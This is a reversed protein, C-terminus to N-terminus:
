CFWTTYIIHFCEEFFSSRTSECLVIDKVYTTSIAICSLESEVDEKKKGAHYDPDWYKLKLKRTATNGPKVLLKGYLHM